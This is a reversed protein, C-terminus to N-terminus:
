GLILSNATGTETMESVMLCGSPSHFYLINTKNTLIVKRKNSWWKKTIGNGYDRFPMNFLLGIPAALYRDLLVMPDSSSAGLTQEM